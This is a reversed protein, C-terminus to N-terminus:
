GGGSGSSNFNKGDAKTTDVDHLGVQVIAGVSFTATSKSQVSKKMLRGQHSLSDFAEDRLRKRNPSEELM